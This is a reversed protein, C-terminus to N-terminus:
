TPQFKFYEQFIVDLFFDWFISEKEIRSIFFEEHSMGLNKQKHV